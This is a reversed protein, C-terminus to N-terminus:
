SGKLAANFNLRDLMPDAPHVGAATVTQLVLAADDATLLLGLISLMNALRQADARASAAKEPATERSRNVLDVLAKRQATLAASLAAPVSAGMLSLIDVCASVGSQAILWLCAAEQDGFTLRPFILSLSARASEPEVMLKQWYAAVEPDTATRAIMTSLAYQVQGPVKDPQWLEVFEAAGLGLAEALSPLSIEPLNQVLSRVQGDKAKAIMRLVKRRRILGETAVEFMAAAEAALPDAGAQGLRALLHAAVKRVKESRDSALGQLFATDDATLGTALAEVLALREEAPCPALQETLLALAAAPDAQRLAAFQALREARTLDLWTDSSLRAAPGTQGAAWAQLPRYVEPLDANPPPMWDAPHLVQGRKAAFIALWLPARDSKDQLLRRAMPRLADPLFPLFLPPLDLRLNLAPPQPPQVFRQYQGAVALLRLDAEAASVDALLPHDAGVGEGGIMWRSRAALLLPILPEAM